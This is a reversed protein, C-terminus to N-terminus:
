YINIKLTAWGAEKPWDGGWTATTSAARAKAEGLHNGRYVVLNQIQAMERSITMTM